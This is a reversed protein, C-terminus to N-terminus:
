GLNFQNYYETLFKGLMIEPPTSQKELNKRIDHLGNLGWAYDKEEACYNHINKTTHGQYFRLGLFDYIQNLIKDTNFVLDDYNVILINEPHTQLGSKTSNYPDSIYNEWLVKSRSEISIPTEIKKLHDDVFNNKDKNILKIYSTIVEPIPRNTCVIKPNSTVFRKLSEANRPHGRHKDIIYPSKIHEYFNKVIGKYVNESTTHLDFTYRTNLKNFSENTFCLLDLLPSTPTVHFDPNQGLISGLLTSGSRPLGSLFFIDKM